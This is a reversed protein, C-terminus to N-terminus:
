LDAPALATMGSNCHLPHAAHPWTLEWSCQFGPCLASVSLDRLQIPCVAAVM